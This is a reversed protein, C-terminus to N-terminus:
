ATRTGELDDALMCFDSFENQKKDIIKSPDDQVQAKVFTRLAGPAIGAKVAVADTQEKFVEQADKLRQALAILDNLSRQVHEASSRPPPKLDFDDADLHAVEAM